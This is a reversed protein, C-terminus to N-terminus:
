KRVSAIQRSRKRRYVFVNAPPVNRWATGRRQATLGLEDLLDRPVPSVPGYTFQVFVGDAALVDLTAQLIERQMRRPMSLLGLGSIVADAPADDLFGARQAIMPLERADGRVIRVDPFREHLYRHLAENLELVLLDEARVGRHLLARTFVGTGGGLEVVRRAGRPLQEVMLAALQQGSPSVAAMAFPNRLWQRFFTLAPNEALALERPKM